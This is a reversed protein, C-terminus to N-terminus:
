AVLFPLNLKHGMKNQKTFLYPLSESNPQTLLPVRGTIELGCEELETFKAPNNSMLRVSGVGLNKLIQGAVDYRRADVPLGLDLNAEVTDRGGDQLAYAQLKHSLGIGRGEHGRLYIVVGAGESEIKQLALEFQQGCDCRLSGLIDGTLCESHVRTLVNKAGDVTGKVLVLHESGDLTSRYTHATFAGHRTPMRATATRTLLVEHRRRWAILEAITVFQLGHTRAFAQLEAGRAMTGDDNVIECLVGAPQFGALRAFDAAAETHGPRQLVGGAKARLPFVHGPRSFDSPGSGTGALARITRSRDFASIGTTTGHKLDVSVTFATRHSDTNQAVMQPLELADLREGSMAVCIVGSTHRILFALKEPTAVEAALILDGENEREVDDAVVVCEGRAIAGIASEVRSHPHATM